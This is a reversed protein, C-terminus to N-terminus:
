RGLGNLYRMMRDLLERQEATYDRQWIADPPEESDGWQKFPYGRFFSPLGALERWDTYSRQEGENDISWQYQERLRDEQEPTVSAAFDDYIQAITPDTFRLGHSVVDGLVDEPRISRDFIEIGFYGQPLGRPRPYDPSGTELPPWAELNTRGPVQSYIHPIDRLFPWRFEAEEFPNRAPPVIGRAFPDDPGLPDAM